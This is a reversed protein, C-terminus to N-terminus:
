GRLARAEAALRTISAWDGAAMAAAPTPAFGSLLATIISGFYPPPTPEAVKTGCAVVGAGAGAAGAGSGLAGAGPRLPYLGVSALRKAGAGVGAAPPAAVLESAPFDLEVGNDQEIYVRNGDFEVVKGSRKGDRHSVRQGVSFM